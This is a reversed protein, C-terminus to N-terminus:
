RPNKTHTSSNKKTYTLLNQKYPLLGKKYTLLVKQNTLNEKNVTKRKTIKTATIPWRITCVQQSGFNLCLALRLRAQRNILFMINLPKINVRYHVYTEVYTDTHLNLSIYTM